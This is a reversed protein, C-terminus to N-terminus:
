KIEVLEFDKEIFGEMKNCFGFMRNKPKNDPGKEIYNFILSWKSNLTEELEKEKNDDKAVKILNSKFSKLEDEFEKGSTNFDMLGHIKFQEDKFKKFEKMDSADECSVLSNFVEKRALYAKFFNQIQQKDSNIVVVGDAYNNNQM